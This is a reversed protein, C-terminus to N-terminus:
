AEEKGGERGGGWGEWLTRWHSCMEKMGRPESGM